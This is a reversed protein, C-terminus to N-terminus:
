QKKLKISNKEADSELDDFDTENLAVMKCASGLESGASKRQLSAKPVYFKRLVERRDQLNMEEFEFIIKEKSNKNDKQIQEDVYKVLAEEQIKEKRKQYAKKSAKAAILKKKKEEEGMAEKNVEVTPPMKFYETTLHNFLPFVSGKQTLPDTLELDCLYESGGEDRLVNSSNCPQASYSELKEFNESSDIASVTVVTSARPDTSETFQMEDEGVIDEQNLCRESQEPMVRTRNAFSCEQSTHGFNKCSTCKSCEKRIHGFKKCVLCKPPMGCLQVLQLQQNQSTWCPRANHLSVNYSIKTSRFQGVQLISEFEDANLAEKIEVLKDANVRNKQEFSVLCCSAAKIAKLAFDHVVSIM